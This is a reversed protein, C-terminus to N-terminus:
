FSCQVRDPLRNIANDNVTSPRYLVSNFHVTWRELIAEKDILLTSGDASLLPTAVSMKPGQVTKLADHFKTDKETHLLSSKKQKRARGPTKCTGSGTRSQRVFIATPLRRPDLAVKM